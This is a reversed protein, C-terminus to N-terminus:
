VEAVIAIKRLQKETGVQSVPVCKGAVNKCCSLTPCLVGPWKKEKTIGCKGIPICFENM